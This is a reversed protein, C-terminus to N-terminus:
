NTIQIYMKTTPWYKFISRNDTVASPCSLFAANSGFSLNMVLSSQFEAKTQSQELVDHPQMLYHLM